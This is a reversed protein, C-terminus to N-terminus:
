RPPGGSASAPHHAALRWGGHSQIWVTTIEEEPREAGRRGTSVALAGFLRTRRDDITRAQADATLWRDMAADVEAVTGTGRESSQAEGTIRWEGDPGRRLLRIFFTEVMVGDHRKMVSRGAVWAAAVNGGLAFTEQTWETTWGPKEWFQQLAARGAHRREAEVIAADPAYFQEVGARDRKFTAIMLAHLRDVDERAIATEPEPAAGMAGLLLILLLTIM